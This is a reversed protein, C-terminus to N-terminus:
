ELLPLLDDRHDRCRQFTSTVDCVQSPQGKVTLREIDAFNDFRPAAAESFLHAIVNMRLTGDYNLSYRRVIRVQATAEIPDRGRALSAASVSAGSRSWNSDSKPRGQLDLADTHEAGEVVRAFDYEDSTTGAAGVDQGKTLFENIFDPRTPGGTVVTIFWGEQEPGAWAVYTRDLEYIAVPLPNPLRFSHPRRDLWFINSPNALLVRGARVLLAASNVELDLNYWMSNFLKAVFDGMRVGGIRKTVQILTQWHSATTNRWVGGVQLPEAIPPAAVPLRLQAVKREDLILRVVLRRFSKRRLRWYAHAWEIRQLESKFRGRRSGFDQEKFKELTGYLQLHSIAAMRVTPCYEPDANTLHHKAALQMCEELSDLDVHLSALAPIFLDRFVNRLETYVSRLPANPQLGFTRGDEYAADDEGSLEEDENEFGDMLTSVSSTERSFQQKLAEVGAPSSWRQLFVAFDPRDVSIAALADPLGDIVTM